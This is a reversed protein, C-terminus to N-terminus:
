APIPIEIATSQTYAPYRSLFKLRPRNLIHRSRRSRSCRRTPPRTGEAGCARSAPGGSHPGQTRAGSHVTTSARTRLHTLIQDIVSSETIFAVLRMVGHCSPCALPDVEFIQQRLAATPSLGVPPQGRHAGTEARPRDHAASRRHRPRSAGADRFPIGRPRNAYWGYYRTTAHGKDPIHVLVRARFARAGHLHM